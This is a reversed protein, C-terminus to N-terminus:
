WASGDHRANGLNRFPLAKRLAKDGYRDMIAQGAMIVQVDQPDLGSQGITAQMAAAQQADQPM